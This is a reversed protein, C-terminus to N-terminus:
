VARNPEPRHRGSSLQDDDGVAARGRERAVLLALADGFTTASAEHGRQAAEDRMVVHGPDRARHGVLIPGDCDLRLALRDLLHGAVARRVPQPEDRVVRGGVVPVVVDDRVRREPEQLVVQPREGVRRVDIGAEVM